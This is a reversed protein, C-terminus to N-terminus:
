HSSTDPSGLRRNTSEISDADRGYLHTRGTKVVDDNDRAKRSLEERLHRLAPLLREQLEIMAAIHIAAPFVDHSSQCMNVHDNPHVAQNDIVQRARNAIVENANM